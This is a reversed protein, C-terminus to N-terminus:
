KKLEGVYLSSLRSEPKLDGEHQAAFLASGDIGCVKTINGVGGPHRSVFSTIDYVKGAITTWCSTKSSHLAVEALTYVKVQPSIPATDAPKTDTPPTVIESDDRDDDITDSDGDQDDRGDSRGDSDDDSDDRDDILVESPIGEDQVTELRPAVYVYLATMSLVIVAVGGLLTKYSIM